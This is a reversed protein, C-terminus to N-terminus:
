HRNEISDLELEIRDRASKKECALKKKRLQIKQAKRQKESRVQDERAAKEAALRASLTQRDKLDHEERAKRVQIM